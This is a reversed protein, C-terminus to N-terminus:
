SLEAADRRPPILLRTGPVLRMPDDIANFEAIARWYSADAFRAWAVSHLTEGDILVHSDVGPRGGSTPNQKDAPDTAEVLSVQCTARIPTGDARFLTYEADVSELYFQMGQLAQSAGWSFELLPPEDESGFSFGPKTWDMLKQVDGSVDGAVEEYADFFISMTIRGPATQLFTPRAWLENLSRGHDEWSARKSLSFKEPNYKFTLGGFLDGVESLSGKAMALGPLGAGLRSM